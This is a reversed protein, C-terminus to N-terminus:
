KIETRIQSDATKYTPWGLLRTADTRGTRTAPKCNAGVYAGAAGITPQYEVDGM